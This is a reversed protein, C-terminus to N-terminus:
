SPEGYVRHLEALHHVFQGDKVVNWYAVYWDSLGALKPGPVKALPHFVLRSLAVYIGGTLALTVGAWLPRQAEELSAFAQMLSGFSGM